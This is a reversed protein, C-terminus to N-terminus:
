YWEIDEISEADNSSIAKQKLKKLKLIIKESKGVLEDMILEYFPLFENQSNLRETIYDLFDDIKIIGTKNVDLDQFIKKSIEKDFSKQLKM